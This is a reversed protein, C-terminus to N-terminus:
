QKAEKSKNDPPKDEPKPTEDKPRAPLKQLFPRGQQDRAIPGCELAKIEQRLCIALRLQEREAAIARLWNQASGEQADLENARSLELASLNVPVPQPNDPEAALVSLVYLPFLLLKM